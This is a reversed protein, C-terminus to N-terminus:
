EFFIVPKEVSKQDKLMDWTENAKDLPFKRTKVNFDHKRAKVFELCEEVELPTPAPWGTLTLRRM